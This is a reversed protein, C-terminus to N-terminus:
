RHGAPRRRGVVPLGAGPPDDGKHDNPPPLARAGEFITGAFCSDFVAFAHKSQALRVYEGFRRMSLAKRRFQAGVSPLPADAPVLFGEGAETHGHGAYWVFLRAEPDTGKDIFFSEFAEELEDSDLDLALTVDFGRKRLAAAVLEADKIANSLRPWGSNYNDIGVVLAHSSGYLRVTEAVPSNPKEDARVQVSLGRSAALATGASFVTFAALVCAAVGRQLPGFMM